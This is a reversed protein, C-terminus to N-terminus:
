QQVEKNTKLLMRTCKQRINKLAMIQTEPHELAHDSWTRIVRLTEVVDNFHHVAERMYNLTRHVGNVKARYRATKTGRM